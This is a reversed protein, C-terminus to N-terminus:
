AEAPKAAPQDPFYRELRRFLVIYLPILICDALIWAAPNAFCVAAFGLRPVVLWGMLTRGVLEFAGSLMATKSFGVGQLTNRLLYILTLVWYFAGNCFMYQRVNALIETERADVFMQSLTDSFQWMILFGAIACVMLMVFVNLVGQRVRRINRAGYNQGAFTAMAVGFADMPALAINQLKSSVSVSTVITTGLANVSAQMIISGIATISYQLGMPIGVGVLRVVTPLHLQMDARSLHLIPFRKRIRQICALGSILQSLVTAVAAGATGMGMPGVFLIDLVVNLFCAIVLYILPTRSDGLSRLVAALMNYLVQAGTGLFIWFLYGEAYAMLEEPTNLLNLIGRTGLTTVVTLLLTMAAGVYIINAVCRRVGAHDGAGFDQAVPIAFGSCAGFALGLVLFTIAGTSGVAGLANAGLIKGVIISDAMNYFQQFLTGILLPLAFILIGKTPSGTTMDRVM